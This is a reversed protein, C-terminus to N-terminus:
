PPQSEGQPRKPERNVSWGHQKAMWRVRALSGPEENTVRHRGRIELSKALM